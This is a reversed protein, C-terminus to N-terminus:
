FVCRTGMAYFMGNDWSDGYKKVKKVAWGSSNSHGDKLYYGAGMSYKEKHEIETEHIDWYFPITVGDFGVSGPEGKELIYKEAEQRTQFVV